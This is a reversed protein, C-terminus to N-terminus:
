AQNIPKAAKRPHYARKAKVAPRPEDTLKLTIHSTRKRIPAAAGHARPRFRKITTGGDVTLFKIWLNDKSLKFNHEANAVASKLLKLLPKAAAKNMFVLQREAQEIPLRRILGAVLRVKRPAM